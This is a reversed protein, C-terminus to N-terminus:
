EQDIYLGEAQEEGLNLRKIERRKMSDTRRYTKSFFANLGGGVKAHERLM